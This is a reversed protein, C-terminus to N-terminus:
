SVQSHLKTKLDDLHDLLKKRQGASVATKPLIATPWQQRDFWFGTHGASATSNTALWVITDAGMRSDRLRKSMKKEFAPLSKSVGPTAAWGPHMSHFELKPHAEAWYETIAVLGRKARAYAKSGDYDEKAFQLDELKLGQLYMGGSAINIVRANDSLAPILSETLVYPALLNIALCREIGESTEERQNFLAGANNILGDLQSEAAAIEAGVRRTESLLSLDATFIPLQSAPVGAFAMIEQQAALLKEKGRGLLIVRAGLRALECATALGLGSTPGTVIFTKGDVFQSLGKHPMNLYGRETFQWAAPLVLKSSLRQGLSLPQPKVIPTLARQMGDVAAKGVRNLWPKLLTELKSKGDTFTLEAQYSIECNGNELAKFRIVDEATFGQGTGSLRLEQDTKFDLLTYSMPVRRGASNLILKFECGKRVAGPTVKEARYVGPDWQEITSFDLLYRFCDAASRAVVRTEQLKVM